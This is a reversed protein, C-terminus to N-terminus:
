RFAYRKPPSTKVHTIRAHEACYSGQTRPAGCFYNDARADDGVPYMCPYTIPEPAPQLVPKSPLMKKAERPVFVRKIPPRKRLARWKQLKLRHAKGIVANRTVGHGLENAIQSSTYGEDWMRLLTEVREANWYRGIQKM